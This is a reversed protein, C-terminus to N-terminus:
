ILRIRVKKGNVAREWIKYTGPKGGTAPNVHCILLGVRVMEDKGEEAPTVVLATYGTYKFWEDGSVYAVMPILYFPGEELPTDLGEDLALGQTLDMVLAQMMTLPIQQMYCELVIFGSHVESMSSPPTCGADLISAHLTLHIPMKQYFSLLAAQYHICNSHPITIWSWTPSKRRQKQPKGGCPSSTANPPAPPPPWVYWCLDTLLTERWLGALYHWNTKRQIVTAIGSIAPLKDSSYTLRLLTYDSVTVHWFNSAVDPSTASPSAPHQDEPCCFFQKYKEQETGRSKHISSGCECITSELCQLMVEWMTFYLIRRSLLHEQYCWGRTLVPFENEHHTIHTLTPHVVQRLAVPGIRSESATDFDQFLGCDPSDGWTASLTFFSKQYVDAMRVSEAAWDQSDDQIICLADIWLYRVGLARCVRITHQFTRPLDAFLIGQKHRTYNDKTTKLFKAKGWCYSLTVYRGNKGASEILRIPASESPDVGLDLLTLGLKSKIWLRGRDPRDSLPFM